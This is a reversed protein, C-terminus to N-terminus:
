GTFRYDSRRLLYLFFPVGTIATLIGVPLQVGQLVVQALVDAIVLFLGGALFSVPIVYRHSVGVFSRAIHPVILGVFGIAGSIAVLVGTLLASLVILAKKLIEVDVGLGRAPEEGLLLADMPRSLFLLIVTGVTTAPVAIPLDSWTTGSLSGLLWFLVAQLRDADPSAFMVFSSVAGMLSAMAVGSLLLRSVSLGSGSRAIMYVISISLLAGLFAALPLNLWAAIVPPLFGMYFLSAGASAGGSIGLVYPEALPNRVLSQMAVGVVSLGAGVAYAAIARPLRLDLVIAVIQPPASHPSGTLAEIMISLVTGTRLAGSGVAVAFAIVPPTMLVLATLIIRRRNV